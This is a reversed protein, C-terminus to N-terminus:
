ACRVQDLLEERTLSNGEEDKANMLLHMMVGSSAADARSTEFTTLQEDMLALLAKRARMGRKFATEILPFNYALPTMTGERVDSYLARVRAASAPDAGVDLGLIVKRAIEFFVAAAGDGFAVTQDRAWTAWFDRIIVEISPLYSETPFPLAHQIHTRHTHKHPSPCHLLLKTQQEAVSRALVRSSTHKEVCFCLFNRKSRFWLSFSRSFTCVSTSLLSSPFVLHVLVFPTAGIAAPTFARMLISRQIKHKNKPLFVLGNKGLCEVTAPLYSSSVENHEANLVKRFNNKGYIMTIDMFFMNTRFAGNRYKQIKKCYRLPAPVFPFPSPSLLFVNQAM